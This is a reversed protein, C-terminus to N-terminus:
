SHLVDARRRRSVYLAPRVVFARTLRNRRIMLDLQEAAIHGFHKDFPEGDSDYEEEEYERYGDDYEAEAEECLDSRTRLARPSEVAGNDLM